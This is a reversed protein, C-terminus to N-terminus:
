ESEFVLPIINPLQVNGSGDDQASNRADKPKGRNTRARLATSHIERPLSISGAHELQSFHM